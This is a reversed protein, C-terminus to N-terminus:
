LDFSKEKKKYNKRRYAMLLVTFENKGEKLSLDICEDIISKEITTQNAIAQNTIPKEIMPQDTILKDTKSCNVALNDTIAMSQQRATNEMYHLIWSFEEKKYKKLLGFLVAKINSKIYDEYRKRNRESLEFPYRLRWLAMNIVDEQKEEREMADFLEDYKDFEMYHFSVWDRFVSGMGHIVEHFARSNIDVQSDLAYEPIQLKAVPESAESQGRWLEVTMKNKNDYLIQNLATNKGTKLFLQIERMEYCNKFAGDEIDKVTDWLIVRELNRCNYFAHRSIKILSAPIEIECLARCESFAYEGMRTITSPLSVRNLTKKEYFARKELAIVPFGEIKDPVKVEMDEGLYALIIANGEKIEYRWENEEKIIKDLM